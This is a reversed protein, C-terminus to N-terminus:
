PSLNQSAHSEQLLQRMQLLMQWKTGTQQQPLCSSLLLKLMVNRLQITIRYLVNSALPFTM